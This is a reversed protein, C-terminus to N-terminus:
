LFHFSSNVPIRYFFLGFSLLMRSPIVGMCCITTSLFKYISFFFTNRFHKCILYVVYFTFLIHSTLKFFAIRSGAIHFLYLQPFLAFIFTFLSPPLMALLHLNCFSIVSFAIILFALIM